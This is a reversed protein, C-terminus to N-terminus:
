EQRLVEIPDVRMARRAPIYCAFFSVTALVVTGSVFTPSDTPRVGYLLDGLLRMLVIAAPIGIALGLCVLRWADSIVLRLVSVPQAGLALRVGIERTRRAVSYSLVGYTGVASLVLALVAFAGLLGMVMRQQGILEASLQELTRIDSPPQDRDIRQLERVVAGAVAAATVGAAARVILHQPSLLWPYQQYPVYIEPRFGPYVGGTLVNRAVGVVSLWPWKSRPSGMRLRKGLPDQGPWYRRVLEQNVIAVPTNTVTDHEDFARGQALPIRLVNFYEPGVVLYNADPVQGAPPNPRDDTTFFQGAWDGAPVGRSVSASEVGPLARVSAAFSTWFGTIAQPDKYRDGALPVRLTLVGQPDFGPNVSRLGALTRIMLGAGVLLVMALATQAIVLASRFRGQRRHQSGRTSDKLAQALQPQAGELAPVIGFLLATVVSAGLTFALVGPELAASKLGSTSNLLYVPALSVVAQTGFWALVVGLAAGAVSMLLSETLLQRIVRWEGAGLAARLAFEHTRGTSRALFLNAVNGCAILLVFTVAGFLVLLALRIDGSNMERLTRLEARWGKLDPHRQELGASVGDLAAEAQRVSIGSKLRGIGMYDNWVESAALGIGGIWLQPTPGYPTAYSHAFGAPMVGVIAHAAGNIAISSGLVAEEGRFRRQWLGYSLIAVRSADRGDEEVSFPRGVLPTVGLLPFLRSSVIECPDEEAPDGGTVICSTERFAAMEEFARGEAQWAVFEAASIPNRVWGRPLNKKWIAVLRDAQAFPLPKLLLAYVASFITTNAGIGLALTLVATATFVRDKLLLRVAFRLDQCVDLFWPAIWVDRARNQALLVHGLARRAALSAETADLGDQRFDQEKMARHFEIEEALAAEHRHRLLTYWV